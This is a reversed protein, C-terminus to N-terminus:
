ISGLLQSGWFASLLERSHKLVVIVLDDVGISQRQLAAAFLSAERYFEGANVLERTGDERVFVLALQDPSKKAREIIPEVLTRTQEGIM